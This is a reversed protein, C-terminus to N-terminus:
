GTPDLTSCDIQVNLVRALYPNQPDKFLVAGDTAAWSWSPARYESFTEKNTPSYVLESVRGHSVEVSRCYIQRRHSSLAKCTMVFHGVQQKTDNPHVKHVARDKWSMIDSSNRSRGETLSTKKKKEFFTKSNQVFVCNLEGCPFAECKQELFCEWFNQSTCTRPALLREQVAWGRRHLAADSVQRDWYAVDL